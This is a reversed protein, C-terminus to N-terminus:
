EHISRSYWTTTEPTVISFSHQGMEHMLRGALAYAKEGIESLDTAPFRPYNILGIAFGEERGGTYIFSTPTLNVCLPFDIAHRQIIQGALSIDGAMHITVTWTPASKIIPTM